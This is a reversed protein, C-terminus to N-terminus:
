TPLHPPPRMALQHLSWTQRLDEGDTFQSAERAEKGLARGASLCKANSVFSACLISSM